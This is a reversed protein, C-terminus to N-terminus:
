HYNSKIGILKQAFEQCAELSEVLVGADLLLDLCLAYYWITASMDVDEQALYALERLLDVAEPIRKM